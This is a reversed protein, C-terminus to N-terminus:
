IEQMIEIYTEGVVTLSVSIDISGSLTVPATTDVQSLGSRILNRLCLERSGEDADSQTVKKLDEIFAIDIASAIRQFMELTIEEKMYAEFAKALLQPKDLNDLRELLLILTEGLRKRLNSNQQLKQCFAERQESSTKQLGCLFSAVKRAFLWDRISIGAKALEVINSLIPIDRVIGENLLSDLGVESLDTLVQASNDDISSPVLVMESQNQNM